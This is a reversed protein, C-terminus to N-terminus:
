LVTFKSVGSIAGICEKNSRTDTNSNNWPRVCAKLSIANDKNGYKNTAAFSASFSVFSTNIKVAVEPSVPFAAKSPKLSTGPVCIWTNKGVSPTLGICCSCICFCSPDFTFTVAMSPLKSSACCNKFRRKTSASTAFSTASLPTFNEEAFEM